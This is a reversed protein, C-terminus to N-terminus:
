EKLKYGTLRYIGFTKRYEPKKEAHHFFGQKEKESMVFLALPHEQPYTVDHITLALTTLYSTIFAGCILAIVAWYWVYENVFYLISYLTGCLVILAALLCSGQVTRVRFKNLTM